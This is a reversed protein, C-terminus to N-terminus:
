VCTCPGPEDWPSCLPQRAAPGWGASRSVAERPPLPWLAQEKVAAEELAGRMGMQQALAQLRDTAEKGEEEEEEALSPASTTAQWSLRKPLARM